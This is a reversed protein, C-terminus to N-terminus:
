YFQKLTLARVGGGCLGLQVTRGPTDASWRALPGGAYDPGIRAGDISCIADGARWGGSEGPGGRMVHLVRLRDPEAQVLLGSTSRSPEEDARAGRKLMMHGARPDLLVRYRQLFSLGIRGYVGITDSFGGKPEIRVEINEAVDSGAVVRPVIALGM